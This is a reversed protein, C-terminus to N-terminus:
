RGAPDIDIEIKNITHNATGINTVGVGIAYSPATDAGWWAFDDGITLNSGAVFSFTGNQMPTGGGDSGLLSIQFGNDAIWPEGYVRVESVSWKKSFMQIQTQYYGNTSANTVLPSQIPSTNISWKYFRYKTTPASSTEITSFYIKSTGFIGNTAYGNSSSGYGTNSITTMLPVRVIDTEPATANLFMIDWYGPPHGVEFDNSGWAVLDAEMVNNFRLSSMSLLLNGTSAVANPLQDSSETTSIIKESPDFIANGFQDSGFTYQYNQFMINANLNFSPFTTFSTYGPDTGNWKFISSESSATSTTDQAASTIDYLALRSVVTEVYTGDPSIDIDRVQTNSPFGPTLKASFTVTATSDIEAINPGNGVYLKGLFQKLPRPVTQVFTGSLSSEGTGDFNITSVGKDHGIYIKETAGFFDMFGGRTFTPSGVSLTALLVPNDYDPNYTAPNNIQIKYLRGTHGIAYFYLVGSEVREKGALIMDTLVTANPDIQEPNQTWTLQGPKIFPNAGSSVAEYSRGSNIDGFQYTTYSGRFNDIVLTKTEKTM